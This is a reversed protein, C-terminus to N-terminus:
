QATIHYKEVIKSFQAQNATMEDTLAKGSGAVVNIGATYMRAKIQPDELAARVERELWAVRDAPTKAPAVMGFWYTMYQGPLTESITPVDPFLPERTKGGTAIAKLRNDKVMGYVSGPAEVIIDVDGNQVAAQMQAGTSFPVELFKVHETDAMGILALRNSLSAYGVRLPQQAARAAKILGGMDKAPFNPATILIAGGRAVLSIPAFSKLPDYKLDKNALPSAVLAGSFNLGLTYGDPVANAVAVAAVAGAGGPKAEVVVNAGTRTHISDAIMRQMADPAGGTLPSIFLITHSPYKDQANAPLAGLAGLAVAVAGILPWAYKRTLSM